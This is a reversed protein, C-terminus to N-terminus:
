GRPVLLALAEAESRVVSFRKSDADALSQYMRSLGFIELAPTCSAAPTTWCSRLLCRRERRPRSSDLPGRARSAM